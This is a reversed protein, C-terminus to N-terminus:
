LYDLIRRLMDVLESHIMKYTTGDTYAERLRIQLDLEEKLARKLGILELGLGYM